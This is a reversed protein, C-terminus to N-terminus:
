TLLVDQPLRPKLRLSGIDSPQGTNYFGIGSTLHLKSFFKSSTKKIFNKIPEIGLEHHLQINRIYWPCKVITRLVKNQFTQLKQITSSSATGWIPCAYTILPRLLTKFLLTGNKISLSSKKNLLPFLKSLRGYALNLKKNIHFKWNLKRDLYVGLYKIGQDPPSWPIQEGLIVFNQPDEPKRLTFIKAESKTPNIAIRWKTFWTMLHDLADQVNLTAIEIDHHTSYLLTDDAFVATKVNATKVNNQATAM